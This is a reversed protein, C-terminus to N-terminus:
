VGSLSFIVEENSYRSSVTLRSYVVGKFFKGEVVWTFIVVPTGCQYTMRLICSFLYCNRIMQQNFSPGDNCFGTPHSSFNNLIIVCLKQSRPSWVFRAFVLHRFNIALQLELVTVVVLTPADMEFVVCWFFHYWVLLFSLCRIPQPKRLFKWLVLDLFFVLDM